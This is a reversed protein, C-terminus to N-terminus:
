DELLVPSLAGGPQTLFSLVILRKTTAISITRGNTARAPDDSDACEEDNLDAVLDDIAAGRGGRDPQVGLGAGSVGLGGPLSRGWWESQSPASRTSGRLCQAKKRVSRPPNRCARGRDLTM